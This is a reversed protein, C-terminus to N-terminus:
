SFVKFRDEIPKFDKGKLPGKQKGFPMQAQLTMFSPINFLKKIKDDIKPNYHQLSAVLDYKGMLNWVNIQTMGQAQHMWTEFRDKVKSFRQKLDEIHLTNDFFLITGHGEKFGEIKDKLKEYRKSSTTSQISDIIIDWVKDHYENLAVYVTQHQTNFPSPSHNVVGKIDNILADEDLNPAKEITFHTRRKEISNILDM